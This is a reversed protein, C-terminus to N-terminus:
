VSGIQDTVEKEPNSYRKQRLKARMSGPEKARHTVLHVSIGINDVILKVLRLACLASEKLHAYEDEYRDAFELARKTLRPM